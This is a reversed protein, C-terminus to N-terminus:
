RFQLFKRRFLQPIVAIISESSQSAKFLSGSPHPTPTVGERFTTNKLRGFLPFTINSDFCGGSIEAAVSASISPISANSAGFTFFCSTKARLM